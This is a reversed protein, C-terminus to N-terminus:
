KTTRWRVYTVLQERIKLQEPTIKSMKPLTIGSLYQSQVTPSKLKQWPVISLFRPQEKSGVITAKLTIVKRKSLSNGQANSTISGIILLSVLNLCKLKNM